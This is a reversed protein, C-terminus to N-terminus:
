KHYFPMKIYLPKFKYYKMIYLMVCKLAVNNEKVKQLKTNRKNTFKLFWVVRSLLTFEIYECM